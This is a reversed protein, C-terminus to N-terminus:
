GMTSAIPGCINGKFLTNDACKTTSAESTDREANLGKGGKHPKLVPNQSAFAPKGKIVATPGDMKQHLTSLIRKEEEEAILSKLNDLADKTNRWGYLTTWRPVRIILLPASAVFEPDQGMFIYHFIELLLLLDLKWDDDMFAECELEELPGELLSVIVPITDSCTISSKLGWLYEILEDSYIIFLFLNVAIVSKSLCKERKHITVSIRDDREDEEVMGLGACIASLGEMDM